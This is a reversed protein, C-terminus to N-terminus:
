ATEIIVAEYANLLPLKIQVGCKTKVWDLKQGGQLARASLAKEKVPVDLTINYVPLPEYYSNGYHGNINVLHVVTRGKGRALTTEVMPTLAPALSDMGCLHELVDQMFVLTNSYGEEFFFTGPRWPIYIGYGLGYGFRTLGPIDTEYLPYCREPPGFMQPPILRLFGHTENKLRTFIFERGVAVHDMDKFHPFYKEKEELGVQLMASLMDKRHHLIKDLGLCQLAPAERRVFDGDYFGTEGIALVTGGQRVFQDLAGTQEGSLYQIDPLIVLKYQATQAAQPFRSLLMEDFPIHLESLARIWGSAEYNGGWLENRIVLTKAASRLGELESEHDKAFRFVKRVNEFGSRDGHNDLRGIIYYDVNGLNAINQWLRLEQLHPSVAVHRYFFSIFDVTCNSPRIGTDFDRIIRTNSSASYQWISPMNGFKETNSEMRHYDLGDIAVNQNISRVHKILRQRLDATCEGIFLRYKRYAPDEPDERTPLDLGFKNKFRARCNMCHCSGHFNHSYDFAIFGSMNYFIGDFDLRSFMDSIITFMYEQQYGGNPCVHVDGNYDIIGGEKTRYAWDPHREYVARRVKSFDTRAIVRIGARHCADIIEALSSGRLHQNVPEDALDTPYNAIIGAANLLVVTADFSQLDRVFRQADIDLMDIERLNTQIMRWPYGTWWTNM